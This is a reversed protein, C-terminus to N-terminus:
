MKEVAAHVKLLQIFECFGWAALVAGKALEYRVIAEATSIPKEIPPAELFRMHCRGCSAADLACSCLVRFPAGIAWREAWLLAIQRYRDGARHSAIKESREMDEPRGEGVGGPIEKLLWYDM